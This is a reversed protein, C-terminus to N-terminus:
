SLVRDWVKITTLNAFTNWHTEIFESNKNIVMEKLILFRSKSNRNMIEVVDKSGCCEIRNSDFYVVFCINPLNNKLIWRNEIRTKLKVKVLNEFDIYRFLDCDEINTENLFNIIDSSNDYFKRFLYENHSYILYYKGTNIENNKYIRDMIKEYM